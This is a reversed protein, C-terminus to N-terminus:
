ALNARVMGFLGFNDKLSKSLKQARDCGTNTLETSPRRKDNRENVLAALPPYGLYLMDEDSSDSGM